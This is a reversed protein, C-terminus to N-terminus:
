TRVSGRSSFREGARMGLGRRAGFVIGGAPLFAADYEMTEGIEIV